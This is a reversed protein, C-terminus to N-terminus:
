LALALAMLADCQNNDDWRAGRLEDELSWTKGQGDPLEWREYVVLRRAHYLEVNTLLEAKVAPTFIVPLPNYDALQEVIVDGLGTADIVLQGPYLTQRARIKELVVQWDFMKFRELAVVRVHDESVEVTIGVTATRKRALDWGTIYTKEPDYERTLGDPYCDIARDIYEGRLIEGGSDVFEGMINQKLRAESFYRVRENM